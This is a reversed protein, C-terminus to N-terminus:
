NISIELHETDGPDTLTYRIFPRCMAYFTTKKNDIARQKATPRVKWQHLGKYMIRVPTKKHGEM